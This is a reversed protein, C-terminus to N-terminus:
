FTLIMSEIIKQLLERATQEWQINDWKQKLREEIILNDLLDRALLKDTMKEWLHILIHTSLAMQDLDNKVKGRNEPSEETYPKNKFVFIEYKKIWPLKNFTRWKEFDNNRLDSLFALFEALISPSNIVQFTLVIQYSWLLFLLKNTEITTDLKEEIEVEHEDYTFSLSAIIIRNKFLEWYGM